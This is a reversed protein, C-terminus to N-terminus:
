ALDDIRRGRKPLRDIGASHNVYAILKAIAMASYCAVGPSFIPDVSLFVLTLMSWSCFGVLSCATRVATWERLKALYGLAGSLLLAWSLVEPHGYCRRALEATIPWDNWFHPFALTWLGWWVAVFSMLGDLRNHYQLFGVVAVSLRYRRPAGPPMEGELRIRSNPM